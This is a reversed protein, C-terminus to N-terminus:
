ITVKIKIKRIKNSPKKKKMPQNINENIESYEKIFIKSLFNYVNYLIDESCHGVILVSGTRFIM